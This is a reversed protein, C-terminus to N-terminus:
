YYSIAPTGEEHHITIEKRRKVPTGNLDMKCHIYCVSFGQDNELDKQFSKWVDSNIIQEISSHESIKSVALLEQYKRDHLNSKRDCLCCPIVYGTNSVAIAIEGNLCKPTLKYDHM